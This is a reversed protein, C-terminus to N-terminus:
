SLIRGWRTSDMIHEMHPSYENEPITDSHNNRMRIYSPTYESHRYKDTQNGVEISVYSSVDMM